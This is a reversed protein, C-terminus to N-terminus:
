PQGAVDRVTWGRCLSDVELQAPALEDLVDAIGRREAAITAWYDM